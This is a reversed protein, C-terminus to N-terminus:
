SLFLPLSLYEIKDNLTNIITLTLNTEFQLREHRAKEQESGSNWSLECGFCSYNENTPHINTVSFKVKLGFIIQFNKLYADKITPILSTFKM